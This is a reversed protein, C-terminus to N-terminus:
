LTVRQVLRAGGSRAHAPNSRIGEVREYGKAGGDSGPFPPGPRCRCAPHVTGPFGIPPVQTPDFNRGNAARCDISTDADMVAYWGLLGNWTFGPERKAQKSLRRAMAGVANAAVERGAMAQLHQQLYRRETVLARAQADAGMTMATSVRRGAMVLYASRRALNHRYMAQTAAHAGANPNLRVLGRVQPISLLSKVGAETIGPFQALVEVMADVSTAYALASMMQELLKREQEV